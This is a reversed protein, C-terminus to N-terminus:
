IDDIKSPPKRGMYQIQSELGSKIGFLDKVQVRPILELLFDVNNNLFPVFCDSSFLAVFYEVMGSASEFFQDLPDEDDDDDNPGFVDSLLSIIVVLYRFGSTIFQHVMTRHIYLLIYIHLTQCMRGDM